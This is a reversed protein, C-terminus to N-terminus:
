SNGSFCHNFREKNEEIIKKGYLVYRDVYDVGDIVDIESPVYINYTQANVNKNNESVFFGSEGQSVPESEKQVFLFDYIQNIANQKCLDSYKKNRDGIGTGFHDIKVDENFHMAYSHILAAHEMSIYSTQGGDFLIGGKGQGMYQSNANFISFQFDPIRIEGFYFVASLAAWSLVDLLRYDKYRYDHNNIFCPMANVQNYVSITINGNLEGYTFNGVIKEIANQFPKRDYKEWRDPLWNLPNLRNRPKFLKPIENTYMNLLESYTLGFLKLGLIIAGTSTGYYYNYKMNYEKELYSLVVLPIIGMLGGGDIVLYKKVKFKFVTHKPLLQKLM